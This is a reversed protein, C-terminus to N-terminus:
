RDTIIRVDIQNSVNACFESSEEAGSLKFIVPLCVTIMSLKVNFTNFESCSPAQWVPLPIASRFQMGTAAVCSNVYIHLTNQQMTHVNLIVSAKVIANVGNYDASTVNEM